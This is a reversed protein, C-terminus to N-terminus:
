VEGSAEMEDMMGNAAALLDAEGENHAQQRVAELSDWAQMTFRAARYLKATKLDLEINARSTNAEKAKAAEAEIWAVLEAQTEETLGNERLKAILDQEAESFEGSPVIEFSM